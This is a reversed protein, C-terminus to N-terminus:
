KEAAKERGAVLGSFQKWRSGDERDAEQHPGQTGQDHARKGVFFAALSGQGRWDCYIMAALEKIM